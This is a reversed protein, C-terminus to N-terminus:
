EGEDEKTDAKLSLYTRFNLLSDLAGLMVYIPLVIMPLIVLPVLILSVGLIGLNVLNKKKALFSFILSLGAFVYYTVLIPLCSIALPSQEYAGWVAFIFLIVGFSSARFGLMEQRFGGPYFLSSQVSRALMLSAFASLVISLSQIGLLYNALIVQNHKSQNGLLVLTSANAGEGKLEKVIAQIYQFQNTIFEPSLWHILAIVALAQLVIIGVVFKWSGMSHLLAAALYCPLFALAATILATAFSMKILSLILLAAFGVMCARFGDSWGKRLTILAMIAASLWGAFPLLALVAIYILAQSDNELLFRGQKALFDGIRAM